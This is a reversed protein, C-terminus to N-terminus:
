RKKQVAEQIVLKPDPLQDPKLKQIIYHMGTNADFNSEGIKLGHSEPIRAILYGVVKDRCNVRPFHFLASGQDFEQEHNFRSWRRSNRLQRYSQQLNLQNMAGGRERAPGVAEMKMASESRRLKPDTVKTKGSIPGIIIRQYLDYQKRGFRQAQVGGTWAGIVLSADQLPTPFSSQISVSVQRDANLEVKVDMPKAEPWHATALLLRKGWPTIPVQVSEPRLPERPLDFAINTTDFMPLM